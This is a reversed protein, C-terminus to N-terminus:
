LMSPFKKKESSLKRLSTSKFGIGYPFMIEKSLAILSLRDAVKRLSLGSFYFYLGYSIYKSPTRQKQFDCIFYLAKLSYSKTLHVDM